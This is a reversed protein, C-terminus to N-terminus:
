KEREESKNNAEQSSHKFQNKMPEMMNNMMTICDPYGDEDTCCMNRMHSMMQNISTFGFDASSTNDKKNKIEKTSM